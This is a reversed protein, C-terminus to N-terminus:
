MSSSRSGQFWNQESFRRTDGIGQFFNLSCAEVFDDQVKIDPEFRVILDLFFHVAEHMLHRGCKCTFVVRAGRLPYVPLLLDPALPV